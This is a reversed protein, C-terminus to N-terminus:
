EQRLIEAPELRTTELAPLLSAVFAVVVLVATAGTMAAPDFPSVGELLSALFRSCVLAVAL